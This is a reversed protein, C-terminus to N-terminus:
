SRYPITSLVVEINDMGKENLFHRIGRFLLDRDQGPGIVIERIPLGQKTITNQETTTTQMWYRKIVYPVLRSGQVRYNVVLNEESGPYQKHIIRMEREESFSPHKFRPLFYTQISRNAREAMADPDFGKQTIYEEGKDIIAEAIKRQKYEDYLVTVPWFFENKAGIAQPAKSSYYRFGIAVGTQSNGYGRWQGLLDGQQCFSVTYIEDKPQPILSLLIELYESNHKGVRIKQEVVEQFLVRGYEYEMSDNLFEINTAWLAQSNLIGMLGPLDTYHYMAEGHSPFENVGLDSVIMAFLGM